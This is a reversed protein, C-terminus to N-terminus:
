GSKRAKGGGGAIKLDVGDLVTLPGFRKVVGRFEVVKERGTNM